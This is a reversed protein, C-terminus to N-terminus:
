RGAQDHYNRSREHRKTRKDQDTQESDRLRHRTPMDSRALEKQPATHSWCQPCCEQAQGGLGSPALVMRPESLLVECQAISTM